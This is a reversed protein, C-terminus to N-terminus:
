RLPRNEGPCRATPRLFSRPDARPSTIAVAAHTPITSTRAVARTIGSKAVTRPRAARTRPHSALTRATASASARRTWAFGSRKTARRSFSGDFRSLTTRRVSSPGSLILRAANEIGLAGSETSREQRNSTYRTGHVLLMTATRGTGGDHHCAAERAQRGSIAAKRPQIPARPARRGG